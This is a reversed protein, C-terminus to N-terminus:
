TPSAPNLYDRVSDGLLNFGVIVIMMALGPFLSVWWKEILSAGAAVMAGWEPAPPQVGLGLFGFIAVAVIGNAIDVIAMVFLPTVANPIVTRRLIRLETAGAARSAEVFERKKLSQVVGRAMRAYQPWWVLVLALVSRSLDRGFAAGAALALIIPPFAFLFDTTRMLVEDLWHGWYGAISGLLTGFTGSVVVVGLGALVSVRGGYLVRSLVDRGLEDTGFLHPFSPPALRHVLDQSIPDFPAVWQATLSVLAWVLLITLAVLSSTRRAIFRLVRFPALFGVRESGGASEKSSHRSGRASATM